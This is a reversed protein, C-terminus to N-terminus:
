RSPIKQTLWERQNTVQLFTISAFDDLSLVFMNKGAACYREAASIKQGLANFMNFTYDGPTATEITVMLEDGSRFCNFFLGTRIEHVSITFDCNSPGKSVCIDDILYESPVQPCTNCINEITTSDDIYFNGVALHTYASDATFTGSITTWQATDTVVSDSQLHCFNNISFTTDTSFKIGIRNTANKTRDSKSVKFSVNYTEGAVLPQLLQCYINERFDASLNLATTALVMYADGTAAYQYGWVNQPVTFYSSGTNSGCVHMYDTHAGAGNANNEYSKNWGTAFEVQNFNSPCASHTEFSWNPVFNQAIAHAPLILLFLLRIM